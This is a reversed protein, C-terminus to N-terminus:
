DSTKLLSQRYSTPTQGTVSKFARNFPALSNYGVDMAMTLVPLRSNQPDAMMHKVADVRYGNLYTSFNRYGLGQNILSRLRHEPTKLAESLERITLSPRTYIKEIEMKDTLEQLLLHDRPDVKAPEPALRTLTEFALREPDARLMWIVAALVLPFIAAARATNFWVSNSNGVIKESFIILTVIVVLALVFYLRFKRRAEVMDDGRGKIAVYALHLMMSGSLTLYIAVFVSKYPALSTIENVAYAAGDCLLLGVLGAYELLGLKFDDEFMARGAFWVWILNATTIVWMGKLIVSPLALSPHSTALLLAAIVFCLIASYRMPTKHWGDRLCLGSLILLMAITPYRILVDLLLM